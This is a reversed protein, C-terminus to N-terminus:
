RRVPKLTVAVLEPFCIWVFSRWVIEAQRLALGFRTRNHRRAFRWPLFSQTDIGLVSRQTTGYDM